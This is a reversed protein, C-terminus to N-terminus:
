VSERTERRDHMTQGELADPVLVLALPVTGDNPRLRAGRGLEGQGAATSPVPRDTRDLTGNRRM